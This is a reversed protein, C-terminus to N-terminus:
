ITNFAGLSLRVCIPMQFKPTSLICYKVWPLYKKLNIICECNFLSGCSKQLSIKPFNLHLTQKVTNTNIFIPIKIIRLFGDINRIENM